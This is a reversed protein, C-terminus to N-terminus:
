NILNQKVFKRLVHYVYHINFHSSSGSNTGPSSVGEYTETACDVEKNDCPNQPGSKAFANASSSSIFSGDDLTTLAQIFSPIDEDWMQMLSSSLLKWTFFTWRFSYLLPPLRNVRYCVRLIIFHWRAISNELSLECQEPQALTYKKAHLSYWFNQSNMSGSSVHRIQVWLLPHAM